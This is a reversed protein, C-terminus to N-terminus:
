RASIAAVTRPYWAPVASSASAARRRWCRVVARSATGPAAPTPSARSAASASSSSSVRTARSSHGRTTSCYRASSSTYVTRPRSIRVGSRALAQRARLQPADGQGAGLVVAVEHPEQAGLVQGPAEREGGPHERQLAIGLRRRAHEGALAVRGAGVAAEVHEGLTLRRGPERRREVRDREVAAVGGLAGVDVALDARRADADGREVVHLHEVGAEVEARRRGADRHRDVPRGRRDERHEQVGRDVLLGLGVGALRVLLHAARVSRVTRPM